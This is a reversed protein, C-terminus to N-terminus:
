QDLGLDSMSFEKSLEQFSIKDSGKKISSGMRYILGTSYKKYLSDGSQANLGGTLYFNVLIFFFAAKM